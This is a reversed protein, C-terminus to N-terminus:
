RFDLGHSRMTSSFQVWTEPTCNQWYHGSLETTKFGGAPGRSMTGGVVSSPDAHIAQVLQEHPSGKM